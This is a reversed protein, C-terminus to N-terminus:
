LKLARYTERCLKSFKFNLKQNKGLVSEQTFIRLLPSEPLILKGRQPIAGAILVENEGLSKFSVSNRVPSAAIKGNSEFVGGSLSGKVQKQKNELSHMVIMAAQKPSSIKDMMAQSIEFEMGLAAMVGILSIPIEKKLVALESALQGSGMFRANIDTVLLNEAMMNLNFVGLFGEERMLKAIKKAVKNIAKKAAPDTLAGFDVGSFVGEKAATEKNGIVQLAPPMLVTQRATVCGNISVTPGEVFPSVVLPEKASVNKLFARLEKESKVFATGTGSSGKALQVVLKKGLKESLSAFEAEGAVCVVSPNILGLKEKIAVLKLKDEFKARVAAKNNLIVWGMKKALQELALSSAYPIILSGKPLAAEIEARTKLNQFLKTLEGSYWLQRTGVEKELSIVKIFEGIVEADKGFDLCIIVDIPILGIFMFADSARQGVFAVKPNGLEKLKAATLVKAQELSNIKIM